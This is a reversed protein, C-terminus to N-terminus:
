LDVVVTGAPRDDPTKLSMLSKNPVRSSSTASKPLSNAPFYLPLKRPKPQVKTLGKTINNIQATTTPCNKPAARLTSCNAMNTKTPNSKQFKIESDILMPEVEIVTFPANNFFTQNGLSTRGKVLKATAVTLKM